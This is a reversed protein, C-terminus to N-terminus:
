NWASDCRKRLPSSLKLSCRGVEHDDLQLTQTYGSFDTEWVEGSGGLHGSVYSLEPGAAEEIFSGGRHRLCWRVPMGLNRGEGWM